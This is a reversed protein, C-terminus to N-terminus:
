CRPSSPASRHAAKGPSPARHQRAARRGAPASYCTAGAGVMLSRSSTLMPLEDLPDRTRLQLLVIDRLPTARAASGSGVRVVTGSNALSEKLEAPLQPGQWHPWQMLVAQTFSKDACGLLGTVLATPPDIASGRVQATRPREADPQPQECLHVGHFIPGQLSCREASTM